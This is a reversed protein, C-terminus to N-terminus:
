GSRVQGLQGATHHTVGPRLEHVRVQDADPDVLAPLLTDLVVLLHGVQHVELGDGDTLRMVTMM